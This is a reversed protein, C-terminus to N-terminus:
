LEPNKEKKMDYFRKAEKLLDNAGLFIVVSHQNKKHFNHGFSAVGM